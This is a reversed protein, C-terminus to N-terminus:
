APSLFLQKAVLITELPGPMHISSSAGGFIACQKRGTSCTKMSYPIVPLIEM